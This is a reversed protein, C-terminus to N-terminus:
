QCIRVREVERRDCRRPLHCLARRRTGAANVATAAQSRAFEAIGAIRVSRQGNPDDVEVIVAAVHAGLKTARDLGM